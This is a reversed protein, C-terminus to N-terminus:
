ATGASTLTTGRCSRTARSLGRSTFVSTSCRRAGACPRFPQRSRAMKCGSACTRGMSGHVVRPPSHGAACAYGAKYRAPVGGGVNAANASVQYHEDTEFLRKYDTPTHGRVFVRLKFQMAVKNRGHVAALESKTVAARPRPAPQREPSPGGTREMQPSQIACPHGSLTRSLGWRVPVLPWGGECAM